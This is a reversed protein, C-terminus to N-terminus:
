EFAKLVLTKYVLLKTCIIEKLEKACAMQFIINTAFM